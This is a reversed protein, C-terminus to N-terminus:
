AQPVAPDIWLDDQAELTERAYHGARSDRVWGPLVRPGMVASRTYTRAPIDSNRATSSGTRSSRIAIEAGITSSSTPASM